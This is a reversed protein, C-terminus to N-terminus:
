TVSPELAPPAEGGDAGTDAEGPESPAREAGASRRKARLSALEERQEVLPSLLKRRAALDGETNDPFAGLVRAIVGLMADYGASEALTVDSYSLRDPKSLLAGYRENLDRLKRVWDDIRLALVADWYPAAALQKVLNKVYAHEDIFPLSTIDSVGGKFFTSKLLNGQSALEPFSAIKSEIADLLGSLAHDVQADLAQAGAQHQAYDSAASNWLLQLTVAKADIEVAADIASALSTLGLDVAVVKMRSLAESRRGPTLRQMNIFDSNYYGEGTSM